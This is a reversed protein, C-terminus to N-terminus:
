SKCARSASYHETPRQPARHPLTQSVVLRWWFPPFMSLMEEHRFSSLAGYPETPSQLASNHRHRAEVMFLFSCTQCKSTGSAGYPETLSQLAKHSLTKNVALQWWLFSPFHKVNVRVMLETPSWLAGYPEALSQLFANTQPRGGCYFPLFISLM